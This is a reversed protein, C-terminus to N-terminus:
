RVLQEGAKDMGTVRMTKDIFELVTKVLKENGVFDYWYNSLWTQKNHCVVRCACIARQTKVCSQTRDCEIFLFHPLTPPLPVKLLNVVRLRIPDLKNRKFEEIDVGRTYPMNYRLILLDLLEQPM